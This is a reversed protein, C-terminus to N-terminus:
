SEDGWRRTTKNKLETFKSKYANIDQDRRELTNLFSLKKKTANLENKFLVCESRSGTGMHLNGVVVYYTRYGPLLKASRLNRNMM